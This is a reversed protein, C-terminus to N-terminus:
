EKLRCDTCRDAQKERPLDLYISIDKIYISDLSLYQSKTMVLNKTMIPTQWEPSQDGLIYIYLPSIQLFIM